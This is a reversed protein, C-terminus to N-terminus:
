ATTLQWRRARATLYDLHEWWDHLTAPDFDAGNPWVLTQVEPDIRVQNFLSLDRLPAYLEGALVPQFNISQETNDDFRVLLIFPAVIEFSKVRYIPHSM